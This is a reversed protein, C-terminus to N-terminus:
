MLPTGSDEASCEQVADRMNLRGQWGSKKRVPPKPGLADEFKGAIKRQLERRIEERMAEAFLLTLDDGVPSVTPLTTFYKCDSKGLPHAFVRGYGPFNTEYPTTATALCTRPALMSCNGHSGPTVLRWGSPM